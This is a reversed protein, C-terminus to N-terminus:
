AKIPSEQISKNIKEERVDIKGTVAHSILSIKHEKLLEIQKYVKNVLVEFIQDKKKLYNVIEKQQSEPPVFVLMKRLGTKNFKPQATGTVINDISAKGCSSKLWYLLYDNSVKSQTRILLSNPGLSMPKKLNPVKFVTGLRAGVNSLILDEPKLKTKSLFNYAKEDIYVFPGNFKNSHDVLRLLIAFDEEDKYEVNKNLSAFSGNAVYDTILKTFKGFKMIKYDEPIKGIWEVGTDEMNVNPRLGQTVVHSITSIRKENLLKIFKNNKQILKDINDTYTILFEAITQQENLPPIPIVIRKMESWRTSWLDDVIGRGWKYFEQAFLENRFLFHGYKGDIIQNRSELVHCILSVSGRYESVGCSGQRDSRSNIVFDGIEVRKRDDGHITKAANELQPVIGKKTVSLPMFDKDSVKENRFEYVNAIRKSEWHKPIREVWEAESDRYEVYDKFIM